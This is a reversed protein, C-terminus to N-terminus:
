NTANTLPFKLYHVLAMDHNGSESHKYALSFREKTDGPNAEVVRELAAILIDPDDLAEAVDKITTILTQSQLESSFAKIQEIIKDAQERKGASAACYAARGLLRAKEEGDSTQSAVRQYVTIASEFENYHVYGIALYEQAEVNNPNARALRKLEEFNGEDTFRLLSSLRFAEWSVSNDSQEAHETKLYAKSIIDARAIDKKHFFLASIYAIEYDDRKWHAKPESFEHQKTAEPEAEQTASPESKPPAAAIALAEEHQAAESSRSVQVAAVMQVAQLYTADDRYDSPAFLKGSHRMVLWCFGGFTVLPFGVLFWILPLRESPTLSGGFATVLGAIGYILM